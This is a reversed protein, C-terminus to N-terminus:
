VKKDLKIISLKIYIYIIICEIYKIYTDRCIVNVSKYTYLVEPIPYQPLGVGDKTTDYQTRTVRTIMMMM